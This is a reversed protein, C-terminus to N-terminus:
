AQWAPPDSLTNSPLYSLLAKVYELADAEDAALCHANGSRTNHTYAGGMAEFRVDEGTVTKIVDPGTIFMHSTKDVMVVFDTLAPSYVHGGAAPGVILSIQPIVGSAHVNRKFIDAFAGLAVVGEQIRAGGGDNIGVLPCGIKMALDMVKCIKEGNVEGLSGGYITFDQSFVCVPRGDGTGYGTIVGDTYPRNQEIGFSTSRHRALEDLEQFSGEDLLLDIRERATLKGKAHQMEVARVSGAHVAEDLRSRLEALKGATTHINIPEAM